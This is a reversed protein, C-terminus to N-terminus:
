LEQWRGAAVLISVTLLMINIAVNRPEKLKYHIAAAMIMIVAFCVATVPTLVPLIRTWWPLLIGAFGLIESVGIFRIVGASFGAVGTQGMDILQKESYISKCIGSYLFAVALLIQGAWLLKNM